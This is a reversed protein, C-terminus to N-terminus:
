RVVGKWVTLVPVAHLTWGAFPTNVSKSVFTGPDVVREVCPDVLVFDALSGAALTPPPLGLLAAPNCTWRRVWELVPLGAGEVMVNWTVGIATELGIIGFPAGAFGKAKAVATHPAHDTAFLSLTGDLVGERIAKVDARLGLPPNMKYAANDDPIEEAALALHHPTAEGTVPLGRARAERILAVTGACSVHQIDLRCGTEECLRIDRRAAEIEAEPPFVPLGLRRALPTDRIVGGRAIAPVVAHDMVPKGLRACATMATRMVDESVVMNGDDTFAAAGAAALADFDVPEEGKRGRSVCASPHVAIPLSADELQERLWAASDGAPTTNPMTVVHTFGGAAAARAGTARTEADPNGPDRFHVHVDWFGPVLIKGRAEECPLGATDAGSALIMGDRVAFDAIEDRGSAPDVVRVGEFVRNLM